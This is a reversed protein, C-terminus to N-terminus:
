RRFKERSNASVRRWESTEGDPWIVRVKPHGKSGLGFHMPVLQGSVHGGGITREQTQVKGNTDVEVWSGIADVNGTKWELDISLWNDGLTENQYVEMAARRNVVVLDLRGDLNLDVLAAGRSRDTTGIGAKGGFEEFTGDPNQILLNNPDKMALGPMQDVNGKAIFLDSLGDNNIDGFQAHWGTSPRGDDGSYPRHAFSGISFPAAEYGDKTALQMLQDGMSTLVVEPRGDGTIDQSAIGMGWISIPKWGEGDRLTLDPMAWMQESGNQVYYHRDNSVRLDATGTRNWDSFLMSLSCYGPSLEMKEYGGLPNPRYLENVDCAEFPGEPDSRDVYNGIALTPRDQGKEWTASFATSWQDGSELGFEVTGDSFECNGLGKLVLNPGVRLIMLDLLGDGNLDFPYAGTMGTISPFGGRHFVVDGDSDNLYFSAPNEGGDSLVEPLGDENCDFVAVGGGVFHEWGGAYIHEDPMQVPKFSPDAFAPFATM